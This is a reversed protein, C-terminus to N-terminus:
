GGGLIGRAAARGSLAANLVSPGPDTWHGALWIGPLPLKQPIRGRGYREPGMEWGCFSGDRNGTRAEFERPTWTEVLRIPLDPEGLASRLRDLPAVSPATGAADRPPTLLFATFPQEVETGGGASFAPAALGAVTEPLSAAGSRLRECYELLNRTGLFISQPARGLGAAELMSGPAACLLVTASPAPELKGTKGRYGPPLRNSLWSLSRSADVALVLTEGTWSRSGSSVTKRSEPGIEVSDVCADRVLTGGDSLFREELSRVLADAGGEPMAVGGSLLLRYKLFAFWASAREPPLGLGVLLPASIAALLPQGLGSAVESFCARSMAAYDRVPRFGDIRELLPRLKSAGGRAIREAASLMEERDVGIPFEEGEIRVVCSRPSHKLSLTELIGLEGLIETLPGDATAGRLGYLSLEWTMGEARVGRCLGGTRSSAEILAVRRRGRALYCAATLGAIGAGVVVADYAGDGGM